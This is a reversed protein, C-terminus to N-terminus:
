TPLSTVFSNSLLISFSGRIGVGGQERLAKLDVSDVLDGTPEGPDYLCAGWGEWLHCCKQRGSRAPRGLQISRGRFQGRQASGLVLIEIEPSHNRVRRRACGCSSARPCPLRRLERTMYDHETFSFQDLIIVTDKQLKLKWQHIVLMGCITYYSGSQLFALIRLIVIQLLYRLWDNNM